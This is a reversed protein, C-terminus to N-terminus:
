SRPSKRADTWVYFAGEAHEEPNGPLPSDADEACYFGGEPATLDRSVYGLTARVTEAFAKNGTIQFGELYAPVLQAQDYLMKEFHPVHWFRDVSYRHFGGGLQDNMGGAAMRELTRTLMEAAKGATAGDPDVDAARDYVRALLNLASPRPFKPADGFGGWEADFEKAFSEFGKRLVKGADPLQNDGEGNGRAAMEHLAELVQAGRSTLADRDTEWAEAIARLMAPFGRRGHRDEPPFYTGGLFPSGEPTMWVSMPWGGHGTTAQVFTMYLRDVDPREERDVKINVFGDNMLKATPDDEFSEAAMVHCWHCTSYGVSLFM